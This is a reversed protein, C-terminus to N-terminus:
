HFRGERDPIIKHMKVSRVGFKEELYNDDRWKHLAPWHEAYDPVFFPKSELLYREFFEVPTLEHRVITELKENFGMYLQTHKFFPHIDHIHSSPTDSM